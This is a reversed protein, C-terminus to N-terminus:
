SNFLDEDLEGDAPEPHLRRLYATAFARRRIHPPLKM